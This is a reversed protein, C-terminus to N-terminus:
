NSATTRTCFRCTPASASPSCAPTPKSRSWTPTTTPPRSADARTSCRTVARLEIGTLRGEGLFRCARPPHRLPRRGAAEEFEEHGQMTRLAPMEDFNELSVVTVEAAGGRLAARASDLAEKVRADAAAALTEADATELGQERALRLATRAADFAVFGGGIVVVRQGLDLRYGKNVNLLYDIAKVVGDLEVGPIQLDRGRSTGVSLFTADFGQDRLERLGFASTLPTSLRLSVGLALIREIEARLLSRPLRYEPIGFRMMGGPEESAEFVSVAYGLV